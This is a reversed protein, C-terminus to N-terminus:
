TDERIRVYASTHLRLAEADLAEADLADERIRVYGCTDERRINIYAPM